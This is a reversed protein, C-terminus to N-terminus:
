FIYPSAFSTYTAGNSLVATVIGIYSITYLNEGFKGQHVNANLDDAALTSVSGDACDSAGSVFAGSEDYAVVLSLSRFERSELIHRPTDGESLKAVAAGAAAVNRQKVQEANRYALRSIDLGIDKVQQEAERVLHVLVIRGGIYFLGLVMMLFLATALSYQARISHRVRAFAGEGKGGRFKDAM